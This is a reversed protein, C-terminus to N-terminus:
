LDFDDSILDMINLLRICPSILTHSLLCSFYLFRKFLVKLKALPVNTHLADNILTVNLGGGGDWRGM